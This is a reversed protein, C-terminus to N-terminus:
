FVARLDHSDEEVQGGLVADGQHNDGMILLEGLGAIAGQHDPIACDVGMIM